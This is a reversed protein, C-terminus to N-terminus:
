HERLELAASNLAAPSRGLMARVVYFSCGIAVALAANVLLV